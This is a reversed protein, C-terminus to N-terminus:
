VSGAHRPPVLWVADAAETTLTTRRTARDAVAVTHVDGEHALVRVSTTPVLSEARFRALLAPDADSVRTIRYAGPTAESLKTANADHRTRGERDPIPDGHPDSMPHDLLADIRDIMRESAAHELQEAEDHVEDWSYGLTEVLFTEILRHRRVMALAYDRGRRTLRVPKYPEYCVLGQAALRRVTDSVNASTTAFRQALATTTIPDEGWEVASWIVKVYDQAITTIEGIDMADRYRWQRKM